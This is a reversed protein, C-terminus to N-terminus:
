AYSTKIIEQGLQVRSHLHVVMTYHLWYQEKYSPFRCNLTQYTTSHAIHKNEGETYWSMQTYYLEYLQLLPGEPILIM